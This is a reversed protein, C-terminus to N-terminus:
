VERGWRKPCEEGEVVILIWQYLVEEVVINFINLSLPPGQTVGWLKKFVAGEYGSVFAVM